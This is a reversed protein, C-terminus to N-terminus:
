YAMKDYFYKCTFALGEDLGIFATWLLHQKAISLEPKRKKPDDIPLPYHVIEADHGTISGVLQRVTVAIDNISYETESGLNVPINFNPTRMLFDLGRIMDTIYCFCRTQDGDGYITIPRFDLAQTIFNSVVRGDNPSMRPGYTNFIRAIRIDVAHMRYYEMFLTEAVRKGEDYCARPGICSVNGNYGEIQPHELPDGYVESTSAQLIKARCRKAIELVHIAGLVCTRTTQIPDRQYHVPSAPCAMNWIEDVELHFPQTIDHRIVEFNKRVRLHDVNSTSGTSFNDLCLVHNDGHVLLDCLHSGIFGGGGTVLVRKQSLSTKNEPKLLTSPNGTTSEDQLM